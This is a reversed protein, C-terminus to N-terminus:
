GKWQVSKTKGMGPLDFYIRKWGSRKSFVPEMCGKMSGHDPHFGHIIVVPKREGIIEYYIDVYETKCYM